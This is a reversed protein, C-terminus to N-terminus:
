AHHTRGRRSRRESQQVLARLAALCRAWAESLRECDRVAEVSLAVGVWCYVAM